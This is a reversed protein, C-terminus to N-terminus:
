PEILLSNRVSPKWPPTGITETVYCLVCNVCAGIKEVVNHLGYGTFSHIGNWTADMDRPAATVAQCGNFTSPFIQRLM